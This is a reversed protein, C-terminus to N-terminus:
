LTTTLERCCASLYDASKPSLLPNIHGQGDTLLGPSMTKRLSEALRFSQPDGLVSNALLDTAPSGHVFSKALRDTEYKELISRLDM